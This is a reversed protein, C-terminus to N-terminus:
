GHEIDNDSGSGYRTIAGAGVLHHPEPEAVSIYVTSYFKNFYNSICVCLLHRNMRVGIFKKLVTYTYHSDSAKMNLIKFIYHQAADCKRVM